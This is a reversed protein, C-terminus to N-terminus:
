VPPQTVSTVGPIEALRRRANNWQRITLGPSVAVDLSDTVGVAPHALVLSDPAVENIAASVEAVGIAETSLTVRFTPRTLVRSTRGHEDTVLKYSSETQIERVRMLLEEMMSDRSRRPAPGESPNIKQLEEDLEPWLREFTPVLVADSVPSAGLANIDRVLQFVDGREWRTAQLLALPGELETPELGLVFPSVRVTDFKALLSGAEFMIWPATRNSPTVCIIGFGSTALQSRLTDAWYAGKKIDEASLFPEVSQVVQPLWVKLANAVRRSAEGSWSIFVKTMGRPYIDPESHSALVGSM